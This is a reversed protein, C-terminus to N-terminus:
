PFHREDTVILASGYITHTYGTLKTAAHNLPLGKSIGDEDVLMLAFPPNTYMPIPVRQLYGGVLKQAEELFLYGKKGLDVPEQHGDAHLIHTM